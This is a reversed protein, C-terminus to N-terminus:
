YSITLDTWDFTAGGSLATTDTYFYLYLRAPNAAAGSCTVPQTSAVTKRQGSADMTISVPNLAVASALPNDVPGANVCTYRPTVTTTHATDTSRGGLVMTVAPNSSLVPVVTWFYYGTTNNPIQMVATQHTADCIGYTPANVTPLSVPWSTAGAQCVGAFVFTKVAAGYSSGCSFTNAAVDYNLHNGNSDACAPLAKVQWGTGNGILLGDDAPSIGGFTGGNNYQLNGDAGGPIGGPICNGGSSNLCALRGSGSDGYIRIKGTPPSSPTTQLVLDRSGNITTQATAAITLLFVFGIKM